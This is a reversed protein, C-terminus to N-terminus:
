RMFPGIKSFFYDSIIYTKIKEVVKAQFMEWELFFQALSSWFRLDTKMYLVRWEQWIKIFGSNERCNKSFYGFIVYWLFQSDIQEIRVSPPASPCVSMVFSIITKRLKAFTCLLCSKQLSDSSLIRPEWPQLCFKIRFYSSTSNWLKTGVNRLFRHRCVLTSSEWNM